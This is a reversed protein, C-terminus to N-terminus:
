LYGSALAVDEKAVNMVCKALIWRLVEDVGIPRVAGESKDMPILRSAM